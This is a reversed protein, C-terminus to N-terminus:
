FPLGEITLETATLSAGDVLPTWCTRMPMVISGSNQDATVGGQVLRWGLREYFAVRETRCFLLGIPRSLERMRQMAGLVLQGGLGQGRYDRHVMVGGLGVAAVPVGTESRMQVPVWGAHAILRGAEKLGIHGSKERWTIGLADTGYPDVEGDEIIAMDDATFDSLDTLEVLSLTISRM